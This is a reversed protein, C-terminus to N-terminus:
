KEYEVILNKFGSCSEGKYDYNFHEALCKNKISCDKCYIGRKIQENKLEEYLDDLSNFEDFYEENNNFKLLAVKNNPTIYFHTTNYYDENIIGDLELKNIFSFNMKDQLKLFEKVTNEFYQYGNFNLKTEKSKSYPILRWSKIHLNNLIKIIEEQNKQCSIDLSLINIVNGSETAAKINKYVIEQKDRFNNFDLSVAITDFNNILSKNFNVFNTTINVNKSFTKCLKVLFDFYFDSLLSIEGGYIDIVEIDYRMSAQNLIKALYTLDLINSNNKLSGLYCFPCNLNCRYLPNVSLALKPRTIKAM